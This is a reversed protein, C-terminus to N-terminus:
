YLEQLFDTLDFVIQNGVYMFFISYILINLIFHSFLKRESKFSKKFLHNNCFFNFVCSNQDNCCASFFLTDCFIEWLDPWIYIYVCMYELDAYTRYRTLRLLQGLHSVQRFVAGTSPLKTVNSQALREM